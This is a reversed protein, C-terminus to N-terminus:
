LETHAPQKEEYRYGQDTLTVCAAVGTILGNLDAVFDRLQLAQANMEESASASEEANAATAQTVKDMEAVAKNIQGIGQAQEGSAAAIEEILGAIKGSIAVNEKFTDQTIKTADHGTKVNKITNEILSSTNKAAEAARMALNRVEDAVVAFGAGAEGARAAEVAANLALLNTQFAIEDITKIIKGTEESAKMVVEMAAEMNDMHVTVTDVIKKAEAMMDRAMKANDANQKTMSSLEEMSSSTEELSAAQKSTGEALSQSATSVQSSAAAIQAAGDCLGSVVRNIPKTVSRTILFGLALAAITAFATLGITVAVTWNATATNGDAKAKAQTIKIETLKAIAGDIQTAIALAEGRMLAMVEETKGEKSLAVIRDRVPRFKKLASALSAYVNRVEDSKISKEFVALKGDIEHDLEALRKLYDGPDKRMYGNLVVDRLNVRTRQYLTSVAAIDGLPKTNVEYLEKDLSDIKKVNVIGFLGICAAIIAVVIFGGLMKKALSMSKM